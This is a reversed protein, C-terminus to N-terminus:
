GNYKGERLEKKILDVEDLKHENIFKEHETWFTYLGLKDLARSYSMGLTLGHPTDYKKLFIDSVDKENDKYAAYGASLVVVLAKKEHKTLKTM